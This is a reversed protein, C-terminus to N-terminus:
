GIIVKNNTDEIAKEKLATILVVLLADHRLGTEHLVRIVKTVM